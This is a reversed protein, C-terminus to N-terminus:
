LHVSYVVFLCGFFIFVLFFAFSFLYTQGTVELEGDSDDEDELLLGLYAKKEEKRTKADRIQL